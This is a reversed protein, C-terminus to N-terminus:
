IKRTVGPEGYKIWSSAEPPVIENPLSLKSVVPMMCALVRVSPVDDKALPLKVPRRSKREEVTVSPVAERDPAERVVRM